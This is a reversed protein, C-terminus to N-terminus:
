TLYGIHFRFRYIKRAEAEASFLGSGSGCGQNYCLKRFLIKELLKAAGDNLGTNRPQILYWVKCRRRLM